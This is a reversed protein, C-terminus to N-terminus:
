VRDELSGDDDIGLGRDALRERQHGLSGVAGYEHHAVALRDAHHGFAVALTHISEGLHM